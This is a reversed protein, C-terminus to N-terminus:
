PEAVSAKRLARGALSVVMIVVTALWAPRANRFADTASGYFGAVTFYFAMEISMAGIAASIGAGLNAFFFLVGRTLASLVASKWNWRRVLTQIPHRLLTLAAEGVTFSHPEQNVSQM